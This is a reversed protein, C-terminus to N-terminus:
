SLSGGTEWRSVTRGAVGFKEAVQEQTFGRETRLAKLFSGTKKQDVTNGGKVSITILHGKIKCSVFHSFTANQNISM